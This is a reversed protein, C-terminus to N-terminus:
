KSTTDLLAHPTDAYRASIQKIQDMKSLFHEVLIPDFSHSAESQLLSIAEESSWARKYPRKSTLADYVDAIAVIRGELPITDGALGHPYGRGNWKEHHTLAVARAMRLLESPHDGIIDAGILTHTKMIDFEAPTLKGPKLLIQDPIGIKGIDHMPAVQLLLEARAIPVGAALALCHAYHSMRIVHLGTEEDRFEAARGLRRIIELRTNELEQTRERVREELLLNQQRLALHIGVRQLVISPNAPKHLYDVAGLELGKQEDLADSLASIFIIPIEQTRLDAKLIRCVDYGTIGSMIVDLLILDPPERQALLLADEGNTAFRVRYHARLVSGLFDINEPADDVLLLTQKFSPSTM